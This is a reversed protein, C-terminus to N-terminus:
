LTKFYKTSYTISSLPRLTRFRLTLFRLTLFRLILISLPFTYRINCNRPLNELRPSSSTNVSFSKVLAQSVIPHLQSLSNTIIEIISSTNAFSYSAALNIPLRNPLNRHSAKHCPCTGEHRRFAKASHLILLNKSLFLPRPSRGKREGNKSFISSKRSLHM